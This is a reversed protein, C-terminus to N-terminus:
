ELFNQRKGFLSTWMFLIAFLLCFSALLLILNQGALTGLGLWSFLASFFLALENLAFGIVFLYSGLKVLPHDEQVIRTMYFQALIFLSIFGLLTLHLYAIVVSRTEYIVTAFSSHLLGLELLSKMALLILVGYIHVYIIHSVALKLQRDSQIVTMIFLLVGVLQGLAGVIAFVIGFAGFGYWLISLFYGPFLAIFYIWFSYRMMKESYKVKKKHLMFLFMGVLLLYLWGNYQFHLYFYIAMEFIASERLGQSAIGGLAFPGISSIILMGVAGYMFVRSSQPIQDNKRVNKIVFFAAVYELFIHITVLTANVKM